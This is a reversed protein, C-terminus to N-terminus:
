VSASLPGPAGQASSALQRSSCSALPFHAEKCRLEGGAPSGLRLASSKGVIAKRMERKEKKGLACECCCRREEEKETSQLCTVLAGSKRAITPNHPGEEQPHHHLTVKLKTVAPWSAEFCFGREICGGGTSCRGLLRESAGPSIVIIIM